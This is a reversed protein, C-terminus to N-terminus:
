WVFGLNFSGFQLSGGSDATQTGIDLGMNWHEGLAISGYAVVTDTDKATVVSRSQTWEFGVFGLAHYFGLDFGFSHDELGQSL